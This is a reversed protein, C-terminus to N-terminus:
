KSASNKSENSIESLAGIMYFKELEIGDMSGALIKECGSLTEDLTVYKGINKNFSSTTFLPQTLFRQLREARMATLRDTRSLEDIGLIAIIHSLEQYKQFLSKVGAAIKFHREGIIDADMALSRSRLIDVAPYIGKEAIERSLVLNADLHSFITTVAPDTLDDAPVYVAQISTISNKATSGIREQFLAIDKELTTQYGMESPVKGLMAAIEMGAMAHRFINDVFLFVNKDLNDRIYEAARVAAAGVRARVGPPKDMEGCYLVLNKLVDLDKLTKYLENGERSREGIGAFVSNGIKKLAMNHILETILVTKGVGAGGFLGIKDGLRIPTLLDLIKIGTEILSSNTNIGIKKSINFLPYSEGSFEKGDIPNGFIDFMRGMIDNSLKVSIVEQTDLIREGRAIGDIKSLAVAKVKNNSVKELVEFLVNHVESRLIAHPVPLISNQFYIEAVGGKVTTLIGRNMKM